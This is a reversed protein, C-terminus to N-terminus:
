CNTIDFIGRHGDSFMLAVSRASAARDFPSGRRVEFNEISRKHPVRPVGLAFMGVQSEDRSDLNLIEAVAREPFAGVLCGALVLAMAALYMTQYHAGVEKLIVHLPISRYKWATRGLVATILFL